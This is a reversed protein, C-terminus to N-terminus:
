YHHSEGHGNDNCPAALEQELVAMSKHNLELDTNIDQAVKIMHQVFIDDCGEHRSLITLMMNLDSMADKCRKYAMSSLALRSALLYGESSLAM